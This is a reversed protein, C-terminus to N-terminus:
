IGVLLTVAISIAAFVAGDAGATLVTRLNMTFGLLVVCLQLLWKAAVHTQRRWPNDVTLAIAIGMGLAIPPSAVGWICLAGAVVMAVASWLGKGSGESSGTLESLETAFEEIPSSIEEQSM